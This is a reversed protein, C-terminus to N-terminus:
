KYDPQLIRESSVKFIDNFISYFFHGFVDMGILEKKMQTLDFNDIALKVVCFVLIPKHDFQCYLTKHDQSSFFQIFIPIQAALHRKQQTSV